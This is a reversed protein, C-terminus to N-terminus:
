DSNLFHEDVLEPYKQIDEATAYGVGKTDEMLEEKREKGTLGDGFLETLAQDDYYEKETRTVGADDTFTKTRAETKAPMWETGYRVTKMREGFTM